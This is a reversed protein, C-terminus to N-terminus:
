DPFSARVYRDLRERVQGPTKVIDRVTALLPYRDIDLLGHAKLMALTHVGEGSIDETEGLALKQGLAHHHSGASTATTVLDGLGALGRPTAPDGGLDVVIREMERLALVALLGRSNDGLELGDSVGFAMAYVNKLIVSWSIGVLDTSHLLYLASDDFLARVRDFLAATACGAQAFGPRGARIEESIMPGYLLAYEFDDGLVTEFMERATDGAEDLGKAISLCVSGPKLGPKVRELVERHPKAPLCFIVFDADPLVDELVVSEFGPPPFKDWISVDHRPALLTEMAHGMEGYGLVLVHM